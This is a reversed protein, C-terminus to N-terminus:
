VGAARGQEDGDGGSGGDRLRVWMLQPEEVPDGGAPDPPNIYRMEMPRRGGDWGEADFDPHGAAFTPYDPQEESPPAVDVMPYGRSRHYSLGPEPAHFSATLRFVEVGSQSAVVSRVAFSRGDRVEEVQYRTPRDVEGARVFYGHMSHPRKPDAVTAGGAALAQALFQGGYTRGVREPAAAGTFSGNGDATVAVVSSLTSGATM